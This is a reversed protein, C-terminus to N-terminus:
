SVKIMDEDDEYEAQAERAKKEELKDSSVGNSGSAASEGDTGNTGNADVVDITINASAVGAPNSASCHFVGADEPRVRLLIFESVLQFLTLNLLFIKKQIVACSETRIM